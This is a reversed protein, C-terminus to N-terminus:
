DDKKAELKAYLQSALNLSAKGGVGLGAAVAWYYWLPFGEVRPDGAIYGVVSVALFGMLAGVALTRRVSLYHGNYVSRSIGACFGILFVSLLFISTVYYVNIGM